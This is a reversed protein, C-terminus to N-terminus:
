DNTNEILTILKDLKKNDNDIKEISVRLKNIEERLKMWEPNKRYIYEQSVPFIVKLDLWLILSLAPILLIIWYYWKLGLPEQIVYLYLIMVFNILGLYTQIRATWAKMIGLKAGINKLM